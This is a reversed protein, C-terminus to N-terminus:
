AAQKQEALARDRQEEYIEASRRLPYSFLNFRKPEDQRIRLVTEWFENPFPAAPAELKAKSNSKM